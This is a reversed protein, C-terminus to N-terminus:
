KISRRPDETTTRRPLLDRGKAVTAVGIEKMYKLVTRNWRKELAGRSRKGSLEMELAKRTPHM